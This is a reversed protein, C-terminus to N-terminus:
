IPKEEIEAPLVLNMVVAVIAGLSSGSEIIPKLVPPFNKAIQPVATVGIGFSLSVALIIMNRQSLGENCIIRLGSCAIMGFLVISAGGIVPKPIAAFIVCLKPFIGLCILIVSVVYGIVRNSVGTLSIVGINQSYTTLAAGNFLGALASGAGDTLLGGSIREEYDDGSVPVGSVNCTATLDGVTEIGSIIYAIAFPFIFSNDFAFGHKLPFPVSIWSYDSLNIAPLMGSFYAAIYGFVIGISVAALRAIGRAFSSFVIIVILTTLGLVLSKPTAFNNTNYKLVDFGGGLDTIAVPALTFGILMVVTGTVVPPFFKKIIFRLRSLVVEVFSMVLTMGGILALGGKTGAAICPGLFVFSTGQVALLGSGLPGLRYCQFFTAIGSAFLSVSVLYVKQELPLNAVSSIIIPPALLGAIMALFHQVGAVLTNKLEIPAKEPIEGNEM